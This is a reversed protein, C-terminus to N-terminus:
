RATGNLRRSMGEFQRGAGLRRLMREQLEVVWIITATCNFDAEHIM